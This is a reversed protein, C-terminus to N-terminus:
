PRPGPRCPCRPPPPSPGRRSGSPARPGPPPSGPRGPACARRRGRGEGSAQDPLGDREHRGEETGELADVGREDLDVREQHRLRALEDGEVGLDVEVVVREEAVGLEHLQAVEVLLLRELDLGRLVVEVVDLELAAVDAAHHVPGTEGHGGHVDDLEGAAVRGVEEVHAAPGVGVLDLVGEADEEGVGVDFATRILMKPPMRRQSTRASPTMAATRSRSTLTGTTTRMFPLLSSFPRFISLSEPRLKSVASPIASAASFTTRAAAPPARHADEHAAVGPQEHLAHALVPGEVGDLAAVVAGVMTPPVVGPLPPVVSSPKGSKSVTESATSFVPALTLTTKTGGPPAASAIMSAASAPMPTTTQMVSPM